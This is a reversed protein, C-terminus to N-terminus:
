KSPKGRNPRLLECRDSPLSFPVGRPTLTMGAYRSPGFTRGAHTRGTAPHSLYSKEGEPLAERGALIQLGKMESVQCKM